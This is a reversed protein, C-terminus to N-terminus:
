SNSSEAVASRSAVHVHKGGGSQRCKSARDVSSALLVHFGLTCSFCHSLSTSHEPEAVLREGVDVLRSIGSQLVEPTTSAM